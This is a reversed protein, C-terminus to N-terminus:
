RATSSRVRRADWLWDEVRYGPERMMALYNPAPGDAPTLSHDLLDTIVKVHAEAAIQDAPGPNEEIEVLEYLVAEDPESGSQPVLLRTIAKM